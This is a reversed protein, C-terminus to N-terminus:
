PTSDEGIGAGEITPRPGERRKVSTTGSPWGILTQDAEKPSNLIVAEIRFSHHWDSVDILANAHAVAKEQDTFVGYIGQDYVGVAVLVFVTLQNNTM